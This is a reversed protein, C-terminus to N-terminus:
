DVMDRDHLRWLFGFHLSEPLMETPSSESVTTLKFLAHFSGTWEGMGQGM